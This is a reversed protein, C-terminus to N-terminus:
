GRVHASSAEIGTTPQKAWDLLRLLATRSETCHPRAGQSRSEGSFACRGPQWRTKPYASGSSAGNCPPNHLFPRVRSSREGQGRRDLSRTSELLCMWRFTRKRDRTELRSRRRETAIAIHPITLGSVSRRSALDSIAARLANSRSELNTATLLPANVVAFMEYSETLEVM